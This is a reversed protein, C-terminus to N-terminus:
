VTSEAPEAPVHPGEEKEWTPSPAVLFHGTLEPNGAPRQWRQADLGPPRAALKVQLRGVKTRFFAFHQSM